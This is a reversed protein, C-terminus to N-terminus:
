ATWEAIKSTAWMGPVSSFTAPWQTGQTVIARAKEKIEPVDMRVTPM